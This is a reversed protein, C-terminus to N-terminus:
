KSARKGAHLKQQQEFFKWKKRDREEDRVWSMHKASGPEEPKKEVSRGSKSKSGAVKKGKKKKNRLMRRAVRCSDTKVPIRNDIKKMHLLCAYCHECTGACMFQACAGLCMVQTHDAM